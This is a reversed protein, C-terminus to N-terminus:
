RIRLLCAFVGRRRHSAAEGSESDATSATSSRTREGARREGCTRNANPKGTVRSRLKSDANGASMGTLRAPKQLGIQYKPASLSESPAIGLRGFAVVPSEPRHVGISLTAALAASVFRVGPFQIPPWGLTAAGLGYIVRPMSTVSHHRYPWCLANSDLSETTGEVFLTVLSASPGLHRIQAVVRGLAGCYVSREYPRVRLRM